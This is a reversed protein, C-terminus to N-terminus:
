QQAPQERTREIQFRAFRDKNRKCYEDYETKTAEGIISYNIRHRWGVQRTTEGDRRDTTPQLNPRIANDLAERFADNVIPESNLYLMRIEGNVIVTHSVQNPKYPDGSTLVKLRWYKMPAAPKAQTAERQRKANQEMAYKFTMLCYGGGALSSRAIMWTDHSLKRQRFEAAAEQETPFPNGDSNLIYPPQAPQDSADDLDIDPAASGPVQTTENMTM